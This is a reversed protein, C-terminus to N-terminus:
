QAVWRDVMPDASPVVWKTAWHDAKLGVSPDALPVVWKTAWHDAKLGVWPDAM